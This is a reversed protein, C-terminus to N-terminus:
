KERSWGDGKCNRLVSDKM